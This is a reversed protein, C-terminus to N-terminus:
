VFTNNSANIVNLMIMIILDYRNLVIIVEKFCEKVMQILNM